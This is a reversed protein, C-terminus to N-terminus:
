RGRRNPTPAKHPRRKPSPPKPWQPPLKQTPFCGAGADPQQGPNVIDQLPGRGRQRKQGEQGKQTKRKKSRGAPKNSM